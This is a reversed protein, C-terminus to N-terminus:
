QRVAEPLAFVFIANSGRPTAGPTATVPIALYQRGRVAYTIPFGQVMSPLRTQFLIKGTAVDHIYVNGDSDSGVVLGGAMTLAAGMPRARTDHRWLIRGSNIDM